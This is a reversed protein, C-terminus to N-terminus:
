HFCFLIPVGNDLRGCMAPAGDTVAGSMKKLPLDFENLVANLANFIDVGKTTGKMPFLRALEETVEFNASVGRIFVALQATDTIDTSEDLAVSFFVFDGATKKLSMALNEAIDEVRRTITSRSLSVQTFIRSREPCIAQVVAEMCEKIFEGDSFAKSQSAIKEAVIYSAKTCLENEKQRKVFFLQQNALHGKLEACKEARAEGVYKDMKSHKSEYHRKVNFEKMVAVAENCILCVPKQNVCTFFYMECWKEQFVRGEEAVRRKKSSSAEM